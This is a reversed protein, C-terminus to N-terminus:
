RTIGPPLNLLRYLGDTDSVAVHPRPADSSVATVTVGPLAGGQVDRVYGRISGDTTQAAVHSSSSGLFLVLFVAVNKM